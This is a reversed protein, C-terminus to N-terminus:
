ELALLVIASIVVALLPVNIVEPVPTGEIEDVKGAATCPLIVLVPVIVEPVQFPVVIATAFPPVPLVVM